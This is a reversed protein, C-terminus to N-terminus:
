EMLAFDLMTSVRGVKRMTAVNKDFDSGTFLWLSDDDVFSFMQVAGVSLHNATKSYSDEVLAFLEPFVSRKIGIVTDSTKPATINGLRTMVIDKVVVLAKKDEEKVINAQVSSSPLANHLLKKRDEKNAFMKCKNFLRKFKEPDNLANFTDMDYQQTHNILVNLNSFINNIRFRFADSRNGGYGRAEVLWQNVENTIHNEILSMLGDDGITNQLTRKLEAVFDFFSPPTGGGAGKTLWPFRRLVEEVVTEDETYYRGWNQVPVSVGFLKNTKPLVREYITDVVTEVEKFSHGEVVEGTVVSIPRDEMVKVRQLPLYEEGTDEDKVKNIDVAEVIVVDGKEDAKLHPLLLAPNCLVMYPSLGEIFIVDEEWGDDAEFDITILRVSFPPAFFKPHPRYKRKFVKSFYSWTDDDVVYRNDGPIRKFAELSFDRFNSITLNEYDTRKTHSEGFQYVDEGQGWNSDFGKQVPPHCYQERQSQTARDRIWQMMEQTEHDFHSVTNPQYNFVPDGSGSTAVVRFRSVDNEPNMNTKPIPSLDMYPSDLNFFEYAQATITIWKPLKSITTKLEPTLRQYAQQGQQTHAFWNIMELFMANAFGVSFLNEVIAHTLQQQGMIQVALDRAGLIVGRSSILDTIQRSNKIVEIFQGRIPCMVRASEPVMSFINMGNLFFKYYGSTNRMKVDRAIRMAFNTSYLQAESKLANELANDQDGLFEEYFADNPGAPRDAKSWDWGGGIGNSSMGGQLISKMANSPDFQQMGQANMGNPNMGSTLSGFAGNGMSPDNDPINVGGTRNGRPTLMTM